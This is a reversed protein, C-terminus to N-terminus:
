RAERVTDAQLWGEAGSAARVRVWYGGDFLLVNLVRLRRDIADLYVVREGQSVWGVSGGASIADRRLPIERAIVELVDGPVLARGHGNVPWASPQAASVAGSSERAGTGAASVAGPAPWAGHDSLDAEPVAHHPDPGAISEASASGAALALGLVLTLTGVGPRM